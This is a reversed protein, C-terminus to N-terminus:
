SGPTYSTSVYISKTGWRQGLKTAAHSVPRRNIGNKTGRKLRREAKSAQEAVQGFVQPTMMFITIRSPVMANIHTTSIGATALACADADIVPTTRSEEPATSGPTVTVADLGANISCVRETTLSAV